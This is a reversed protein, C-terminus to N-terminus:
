LAIADFAYVVMATEEVDIAGVGESKRAQTATGDALFHLRQSANDQRALARSKRKGLIWSFGM